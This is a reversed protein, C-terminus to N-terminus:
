TKKIEVSHLNHLFGLQMIIKTIGLLTNQKTLLLYLSIMRNILYRFVFIHYSSDRITTTTQFQFISGTIIYM